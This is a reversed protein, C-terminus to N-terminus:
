GYRRRVLSGPLRAVADPAMACGRRLMYGEGHRVGPLLTQVGRFRNWTEVLEILTDPEQSAHCRLAAQKVPWHATIDLIVDPQPGAGLMPECFLLAQPPALVDTVIASTVRHDPHYDDPHHTICLAPACAEIRQRLAATAAGRHEALAMDPFGLLHLQAGCLAAAKRAEDARVAVLAPDAAGRARAGDTMVVWILQWGAAALALQTGATFLEIDDPHAGVTILCPAPEAM